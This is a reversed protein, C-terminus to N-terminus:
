QRNANRSEMRANFRNKVKETMLPNEEINVYYLNTFRGLVSTLMEISKDTLNNASVDLEELEYHQGVELKSIIETLGEDTIWNGRFYLKRIKPEDCLSRSIAFIADDTLSFESCDFAGENDGELLGYDLDTQRDEEEEGLLVFMKEYENHGDLKTDYLRQIKQIAFSGSQTEDLRSQNLSKPKTSEGLYSSVNLPILIDLNNFVESVNLDPLDDPTLKDVLVRPKLEDIDFVCVELARETNHFIFKIQDEKCRFLIECYHYAMSGKKMTFPILSYKGKALSVFGHVHDETGTTKAIHVMRKLDVSEVKIKNPIMSFVAFGFVEHDGSATRGDSSVYRHCQILIKTEEKEFVEFIYQPNEIWASNTPAAGGKSPAFDCDFKIGKWNDPYDQIIVLKNFSELFERMSIVYIGDETGVQKDEMPTSYAWPDAITVTRDAKSNGDVGLIVYIHGATVPLPVKGKQADQWCGMISGNKQFIKLIEWVKLEDRDPGIDIVEPMLGTLDRLYDVITRHKQNFVQYGGHLKAYAKEIMGPWFEQNNFCRASIPVYEGNEKQISPLRDDILVFLSQSTNKMFRFTYLCKEHFRELAPPFMRMLTKPCSVALVMANLFPLNGFEGQILTRLWFKEEVNGCIFYATDEECIGFFDMWIITGLKEPGFNLIKTGEPDEATPNFEPDDWMFEVPVPQKDADKRISTEAKNPKPQEEEEDFGEDLYEDDAQDKPQTKTAQKSSSTPNADGQNDQAEEILKEIELECNKVDSTVIVTKRMKKFNKLEKSNIPQTRENKAEVNQLFRSASDQEKPNSQAEKRAAINKNTERVFSNANELRKSMEQLRRDLAPNGTRSATSKKLDEM